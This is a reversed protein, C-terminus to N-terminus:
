NRDTFPHRSRADMPENTGYPYASTPLGYAMGNYATGGSDLWNDSSSKNSVPHM